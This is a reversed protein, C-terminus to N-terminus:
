LHKKVYERAKAPENVERVFERNNLAWETHQDIFPRYQETPRNKEDFLKLKRGVRRMTQQDRTM